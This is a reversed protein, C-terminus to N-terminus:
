EPTFWISQLLYLKGEPHNRFFPYYVIKKHLESARIFIQHHNRSILMVLDPRNQVSQIYEIEKRIKEPVHVLNKLALRLTPHRYDQEEIVPWSQIVKPTRRHPLIAGNSLVPAFQGDRWQMYAVIPFEKVQIYVKSPFSRKIEVHQIESRKELRNKAESFNSHFHPLGKHIRTTQVIEQDSLLRNGQIYIQEIRGLPSQFFLVLLIGMLFVLIIVFVWPSLSRKYGVKIRLPPVREDL